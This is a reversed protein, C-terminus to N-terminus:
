IQTHTHREREGEGERRKERGKREIKRERMSVKLREEEPKRQLGHLCVWINKKQGEDLM